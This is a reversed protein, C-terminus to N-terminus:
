KKMLLVALYQYIPCQCQVTDVWEKLLGYMDLLKNADNFSYREPSTTEFRAETMPSDGWFVADAKCEANGVKNVPKALLLESEFLKPSRNL